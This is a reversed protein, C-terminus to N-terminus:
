TVHGKPYYGLQKVTHLCGEALGQADRKLRRWRRGCRRSPSSPSKVERRCMRPPAMLPLALCSSAGDRLLLSFLRAEMTLCLHNAFSHILLDLGQSQSTDHAAVPGICLLGNRLATKTWCTSEVLVCRGSNRFLVLGQQCLRQPLSVCVCVCCLGQAEIALLV